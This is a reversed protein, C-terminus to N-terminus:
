EDGEDDDEKQAEDRQKKKFLRKVKAWQAGVALAFAALGAVLLQLLISGSGPDLYLLIM